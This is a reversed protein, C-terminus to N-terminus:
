IYRQILAAGDESARYYIRLEGKDDLEFRTEELIGNKEATCLAEAIAKKKFSRFSGYTPRLEEMVSVTDADAVHDYVKLIAYNLPIM